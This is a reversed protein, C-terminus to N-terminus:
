LGGGVGFLADSGGAAAQVYERFFRDFDAGRPGVCEDCGCFFVIDMETHNKLIARLPVNAFEFAPEIL